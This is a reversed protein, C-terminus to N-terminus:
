DGCPLDEALEAQTIKWSNELKAATLLQSGASGRGVPNGGEDFVRVESADECALFTLRDGAYSDRAFNRLVVDGTIYLGSDEASKLDEELGALYDGAGYAMLLPSPTSSGGSRMLRVREKTFERYAHEAEAFAAAEEAQAAAKEATCPEGSDDPTCTWTPTPTATPGTGATATCGALLMTMVGALALTTRTTWRERLM